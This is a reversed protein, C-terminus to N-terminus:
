LVAENVCDEILEKVQRYKIDDEDLVITFERITEHVNPYTELVTLIMETLKISDTGLIACVEQVVPFVLYSFRNEEAAKLVSLISKQIIEFTNRIGSGLMVVHILQQTNGGGTTVFTDGWFVSNRKIFQEFSTIGEEAGCYNLREILPNLCVANYYQPVILAEATLKTVDGHLVDVEISNIKKM